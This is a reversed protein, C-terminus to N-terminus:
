NTNQSCFLTTFLTLGRNCPAYQTVAFAFYRPPFHYGVRGPNFLAVPLVGLRFTSGDLLGHATVVRTTPFGAPLEVPKLGPWQGEERSMANFVQQDSTLTSYRGEKANLHANWAETYRQLNFKFPLNQFRNKV